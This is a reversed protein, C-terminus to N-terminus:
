RRTALSDPVAPLAPAQLCELMAETEHSCDKWAFAKPLVAAEPSEDLGAQYWGGHRADILHARVYEWLREFHGQYNAPDAPHMLAMARLLRMGEAQTWWSKTKLFLKTGEIDVPPVSGGAAHFGGRAPDWAVVLMHDVVSKVAGATAPDVTGTLAASAALLLNAARLAHGYRVPDPVPTWDPHTCMHMTGPAVVFRERVIRLMEELRARLLPDPWVRYLDAFAKLLDSTTNIDKFGIPAGIPDGAVGPPLADPSLIRTGDRRFFIFYGGHADDYAHEELWAFASKALAVCEENGTAEYCRVCASIAYSSGHAHKTAAELPHGVRDLVRYWGGHDHDWMVDHLYRFGHLATERLFANGPSESTGRAAALTQRAQYELMKIHPGSPQWRDDFDCLFGGHERDITRPFWARQISRLEAELQAPLSEGHSTGSTGRRFRSLFRM